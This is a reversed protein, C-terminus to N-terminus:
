RDFGDAFRREDARPGAGLKDASNAGNVVFLQQSKETMSRQNEKFYVFYEQTLDGQRVFFDRTTPRIEAKQFFIALFKEIFVPM